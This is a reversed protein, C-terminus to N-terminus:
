VGSGLGVPWEQVQLKKKLKDKMLPLFMSTKLTLSLSFLTPDHDKKKLLAHLASLAFSALETSSRGKSEGSTTVRHRSVGKM